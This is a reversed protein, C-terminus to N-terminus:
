ANKRRTEWIKKGTKDYKMHCSQCLSIWDNLNRKYQHSKNAWQIRNKSQCHTCIQAKGLKRYVWAHLAFYGVKDGKWNPNETGTNEGKRFETGISSREGKKFHTRGTNLTVGKQSASWPVIGKKFWGKEGGKYFSHGKTFPM